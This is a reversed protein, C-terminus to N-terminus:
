DAHGELLGELVPKSEVGQALDKSEIIFNGSYADRLGRVARQLDVSGKGLVRHEDRDGVNDHIHVNVTRDALTLFEDLQGMTWAHGVDLTFGVDIGETMRKWSELTECTAVWIRPMNELGVKVGVDRAANSIARLSERGKEYAKDKDAVSLPSIFGPHITVPGIDLESACEITELLRNVSVDRIRPDLSAINMDSMPAHVQFSMGEERWRLVDPKIDALYHRGEAMIEFLEFHEAARGVIDNFPVLSFAPCGIGIM